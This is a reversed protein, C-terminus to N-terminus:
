LPMTVWAPVANDNPTPKLMVSFTLVEELPENRSFQTVLCTMRVGENGTSDVAGDLCLIEIATRNLFADRLAQFDATNSPDSIMEFEIAAEKLAALFETWTSARRKVEAEGSELTLSVDQADQIEAWTPSGYSGTNHYLKADLGLKESSM